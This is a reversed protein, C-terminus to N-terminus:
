RTLKKTLDPSNQIGMLIGSRSFILTLTQQTPSANGHQKRFVYFWTKTGFPDKLMPTGLTYIVQQQTMGKKIKAVGSPTLYNGQNVDPHYAMRNFNSCGASLMTLVAATTTLKKCRM